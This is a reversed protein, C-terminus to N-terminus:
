LLNALSRVAASDSGWEITYRDVTRWPLNFGNDDAGTRRLTTSVKGVDCAWRHRSFTMIRYVGDEQNWGVTLYGYSHVGAHLIRGIVDGGEDVPRHEIITCNRLNVDRLPEM